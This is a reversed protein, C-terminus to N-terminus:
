DNESFGRDCINPMTRFVGKSNDFFDLAEPYKSFKIRNGMKTIADDTFYVLHHVVFQKQHFEKLDFLIFLLLENYLRYIFNLKLSFM